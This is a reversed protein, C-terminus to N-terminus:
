ESVMAPGVSMDIPQSSNSAQSVRVGKPVNSFDVKLHVGTPGAANFPADARAQRATIAGMSQGTRAEIAQSAQGAVFDGVALPASFGPLFSLKDLIPRVATWADVISWRLTDGVDAFKQQLSDWAGYIKWGAVALASGVGAVLLIAPGLAIIVPLVGILAVGLSAISVALPALLVGAGVAAVGMPGLFDIVKGITDGVKTLSDGLRTLGGGSVWRDIAEGASDAWKTIGDRHKVLWETALKSLKTLTPFLGAAAANRLGLFALTTNKTANDLDDAGNAFNEQSGALRMYEQEQELIAKTGQHMFTGFQTNSKGFAAAALTARRQEDPIKKMADSILFFAEETTKAGKVQKAFTPSIENLFALFKGGKGVTMDGLQKNLKDMGSNFSEQDIDALNAAHGLSAYSDVTLGTREAMTKLADGSEMAGHLVTFAAYGAGATLMAFKGVLSFVEAGVGKLAGGVKMFGDLNLAEGFKGLTKGLGTMPGTALNLKETMAAIPGSAKDVARVILSLPFQKEAAM